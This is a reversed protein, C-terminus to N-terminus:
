VYKWDMADAIVSFSEGKETSAWLSYGPPLCLSGGGIAQYSFSRSCGGSSASPVIIESFLVPTSPVDDQLFLRIMGPTTTQQAKIVLSNIACGSYGSGASGATIIKTMTGSGTLSTNATSIKGNGAQAMYELSSGIFTANNSFSIDFAEAIVNFTDAKESSVSLDEGSALTQNFPIVGFFSLDRGSKVTPVVNYEALLLDTGGSKKSYIRIMGESTDTQAKIILTKVLTGSGAGTIITRLTGSGDLNSNAVDITTMGMKATYLTEVSNSM